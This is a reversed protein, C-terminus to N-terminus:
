RITSWDISLRNTNLNDVVVVFVGEKGGSMCLRVMPWLPGSRKSSFIPSCRGCNGGGHWDYVSDDNFSVNRVVLDRRLAM